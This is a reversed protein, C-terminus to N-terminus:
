FYGNKWKKGRPCLLMFVAKKCLKELKELDMDSGQIVNIYHYFFIDSEWQITMKMKGELDGTATELINVSGGGSFFSYNEPIYLDFITNQM